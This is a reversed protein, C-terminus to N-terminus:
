RLQLPLFKWAAALFLLAGCLTNILPFWRYVRLLEAESKQRLSLLMLGGYIAGLLLSFAGLTSYSLAAASLYLTLCFVLTGRFGLLTAVTALGGSKDASIDPVASYAHMAMAWCWAAIFLSSDFAKGGILHYAYVGPFIYLVNSISDLLPKTKFRPPASYFVGCLAFGFFGILSEPPAWLLALAFPLNTLAVARWLPAREDPPVLSEYGTKKANAVDTEYDFIDNVGYVLLNAPLTFYLAFLLVAPQLFDRLQSAGAALGVIYPGFLYIWFRPRSTQLLRPLSPLLLFASSASDSRPV